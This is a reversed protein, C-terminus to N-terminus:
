QDSAAGAMGTLTIEAIRSFLLPLYVSTPLIM